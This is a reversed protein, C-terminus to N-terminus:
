GHVRNFYLAAFGRLGVCLGAFRTQTPFSGCRLSHAKGAPRPSRYPAQPSATPTSQLSPGGTGMGFVATLSVRASFVQSAVARSFLYHRCLHPRTKVPGSGM